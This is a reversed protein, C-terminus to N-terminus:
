EPSWPKYDGTAKPREGERWLSGQPRYAERTGTMNPKHDKEWAHRPLPADTPPEEFIYHLWGHWDPPVRSAEVTGNYIVWRRRREAGARAKREQYYKNGQEDEGVFEGRQATFLHTGLTATNWWTFLTKFM